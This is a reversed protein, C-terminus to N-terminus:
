VQALFQQWYEKFTQFVKLSNLYLREYQVINLLEQDANVGSKSSIVEDIAEKKIKGDNSKKETYHYKANRTSVIGNGYVAASSTESPISKYSPFKFQDNEVTFLKGLIDKNNQGINYNSNDGYVMATDIKNNKTIKDSVKLSIASNDFSNTSHFKDKSYSLMHNFGFFKNIGLKNDQDTSVFSESENLFNSNDDVIAFNFSPNDSRLRLYGEGSSIPNGNNDVLEATLKHGTIPYSNIVGVLSDITIKHNTVASDLDIEIMSLPNGSFDKAQSGDSPDLFAIKFKGAAHISTSGSFKATSTVPENFGTSPVADAYASNLQKVITDTYIDLRAITEPIDKDRADFLAQLEGGRLNHIIEDTVGSTVIDNRFAPSDNQIKEDVVSLSPFKFNKNLYNNLSETHSFEVKYKINGKILPIGTTTEVVLAGDKDFHENIDIIKSIESVENYLKTKADNYKMDSGGRTNGKLLPLSASLERASIIHSNLKEVSDAIQKDAKMRQKELDESQKSVNETFERLSNIINTMETSDNSSGQLKNISAFVHSLTGSVSNKGDLKLNYLTDSGEKLLELAKSSSSCESNITNKEKLLGETIALSIEEIVAGVNPNSVIKADQRFYDPNNANVINQQGLGILREHNNIASRTTDLINSM